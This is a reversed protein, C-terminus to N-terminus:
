INQISGSAVQINVAGEITDLGDKFKNNATTILVQFKKQKLHDILKQWRYSDLEGSVDDILVIPYTKFKYLFLETYAFLLSLYSTKQQGLSCYDFSNLGDFLLVYDDRHVGYTTRGTIEDKKWNHNMLDRYFVEDKSIMCSDLELTLLHEESFLEYFTKELLKNIEKIFEIRENTISVAMKSMEVDIAVIQSKYEFPKKQLLINRNKLHKTYKSLNKKYVDSVQSLHTDIWNRRFSPSTHFQQSDFPNIFILGAGIKKKTPKGDLFWSAGENLLKGSLTKTSEISKFVSQFLIENNEGDLSIIQPFSTNKRFSKRNIIYYLAELINTKGNGNDGFICNIGSGFSIIDPELNRFNTVQLKSIKM